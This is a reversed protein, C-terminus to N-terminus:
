VVRLGILSGQVVDTYHNMVLGSLVPTLFYGFVNM